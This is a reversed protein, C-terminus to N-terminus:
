GHSLAEMLQDTFAAVSWAPRGRNASQQCYQSVVHVAASERIANSTCLQAFLPRFSELMKLEETAFFAKAMKRDKDNCARHHRTIYREAVTEVHLRVIARPSAAEAQDEDEEPSPEEEPAAEDTEEEADPAPTDTKLNRGEVIMDITTMGSQLFYSRSADSNLTNEDELERIEDPSLSGLHFRTKYFEARTRMDGRVLANLNHRIFYKPGDLLKRELEQEIRSAWSSLTDVVYSISEQETNSFTSHTNEQIKSLPIRIWRAIDQVQFLRAELLQAEAPPIGVRTYQMGGWLVLTSGAKDPGGYTQQLYERLNRRAKDDLKDPHVFVGSPTMGNGFFGGAVKQAAIAIGLSEAAARLISVGLVDSGHGRVHIMDRSPLTVADVRRGSSLLSMDDSRVDYVLDGSDLRRPSVRSPHVLHAARPRDSGDRVIEAYGNGWHMCMALLSERFSLRTMDKNPEALLLAAPHQPVERKGSDVREYVRLPVKAVDEAINRVGGFYAAITQASEHDVRVGSRTMSSAPSGTVTWAGPRDWISANGGDHGAFVQGLIRMLGM